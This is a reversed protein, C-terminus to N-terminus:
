LGATPHNSEHIHVALFVSTAAGELHCFMYVADAVDGAISHHFLYRGRRDTLTLWIAKDEETLAITHRQWCHTIM